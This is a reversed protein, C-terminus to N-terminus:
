ALFFRGRIKVSLYPDFCFLPLWWARFLLPLNFM